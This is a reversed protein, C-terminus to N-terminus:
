RASTEGVPGVTVGALADNVVSALASRRTLSGVVAYCCFPRGAETFFRQVGGMTAVPRQMGQSSIDAARIRPIGRAAFLRTGRSEEGFEVLAVFVDNARMREVAGSGYDGRGDPLAFSALHVVPTTVGSMPVPDDSGAAGPAAVSSETRRFIRCDWGRPVTVALGQARLIV